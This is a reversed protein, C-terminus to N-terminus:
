HGHHHEDAASEPGSRAVPIQLQVDGKRGDRDVFHLTAPVSAGAPLAQKLGTVMVHYGSPALAVTSGPPLDLGDPLERMRMVDGEMKMEHVAADGIPTSVGVLRAGAPATLRAYLGTTPQGPVTARAWADRVDVAAVGPPLVDLRAAPFEPSPTAADPVAAWDARGADCTQAVKFWLTGPKDTLKGTVVFSDATAGPLAAQPTAATWTVEDGRTALTWGARPQASVFRFGAPLRVALATTATAGKCAHDVKFAAAYTSGAAAGGPPLSVHAGATVALTSLAISTARLTLSRNM